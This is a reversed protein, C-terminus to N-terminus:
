PSGTCNSSFLKTHEARHSTLILKAASNQVQQLPKIVTQPYGALLSNCYDLRSLICPNVLTKTADETLYQHISSRYRIETYAAKCTKIIHQKMSLNSDFIFSLNGVTGSFEGNTNILTHTHCPQTLLPHHHSVFLKLRIIWNSNTKKWGYCCYNLNNAFFFSFFFSLFCICVACLLFICLVIIALLTLSFSVLLSSLPSIVCFVFYVVVFLLVLHNFYM